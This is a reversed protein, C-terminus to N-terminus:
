IDQGDRVLQGHDLRYIYDCRKALEESHTVLIMSMRKNKVLDFILEMVQAGTTEDLSGSPEDALLLEPAIVMARAIAVRQKEGGSLKGPLHSLRDGLGVQELATQAKSFAEPDQAIELPLAVNELTTLHSLLHFQQFIIGIRRARLQTLQQENLGCLDTGDFLIEGSDARDLGSMLSLFTSKGSGSKGLVAISQGKEVKLSLDKLIHITKPGQSFSKNIAQVNLITM